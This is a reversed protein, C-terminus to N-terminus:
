QRCGIAVNKMGNGFVYMNGVNSAMPTFYGFLWIATIADFIAMIPTESVGIFIHCDPSSLLDIQGDQRLHSCCHDHPM